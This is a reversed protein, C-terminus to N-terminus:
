GLTLANEHGTEGDLGNVNSHIIDIVFRIGMVQLFKASLAVDVQMDNVRTKISGGVFTLRRAKKTRPIAPFLHEVKCLLNTEVLNCQTMM